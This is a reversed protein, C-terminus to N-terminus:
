DVENKFKVLRPCLLTFGDDSDVLAYTYGLKNIRNEWFEIEDMDRTPAILVNNENPVIGEVGYNEIIRYSM